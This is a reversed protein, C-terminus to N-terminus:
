KGYYFRALIKLSVGCYYLLLILNNLVSSRLWGRQTIRRSSITLPSSLVRIQCNKKLRSFWEVDELLPLPQYAGIRKFVAKRVFYGQDGYALKFFKVRWYVGKEILRIWWDKQHNDLAFSFCGGDLKPDTFAKIMAAYAVQTLCCDAHLFLLVNGEAVEYGQNMQVARNAQNVQLAKIGVAQCCAVSEDQSGGDVVIIQPKPTLQQLAVLLPKIRKGENLMPIIISIKPIETLWTILARRAPTDPLLTEKLIDLDQIVDVDHWGSGTSVEYHATTLLQQTDALTAASSWRIASLDPLLQKTGILYYGGDETPGLVVDHTTLQKLCNIIFAVPLDPADSGVICVAPHGLDLLQNAIAQLRVGLNNVEQQALIEWVPWSAHAWREDVKSSPCIIIKFHEALPQLSESLCNLSLAYFEAASQKSLSRALRTKVPIRHYNKVFVALVPPKTAGGQQTSREQNM